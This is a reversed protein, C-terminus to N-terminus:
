AVHGIRLRSKLVGTIAISAQTITRHRDQANRFASRLVGQPSNRTLM